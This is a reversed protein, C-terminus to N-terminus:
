QKVLRNYEEIFFEALGPKVIKILRRKDNQISYYELNSIPYVSLQSETNNVWNGDRDEYHHIDIPNVFTSIYNFLDMDSMPWDTYPDIIENVILIIWHLTPKGYVRAAIHEPREGDKVIYHEYLFASNKVFAALKTRVTVDKVIQEPAGELLNYYIVPMSEFYM